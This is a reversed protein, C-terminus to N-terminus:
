NMNLYYSITLPLTGIVGIRALKLSFGPKQVPDSWTILCSLEFTYATSAEFPTICQRSM